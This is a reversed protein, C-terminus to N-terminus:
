CVQDPNTHSRYQLTHHCFEHHTECQVNVLAAVYGVTATREDHLWNLVLMYLLSPRLARFHPMVPNQGM